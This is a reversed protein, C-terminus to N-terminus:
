TSVPIHGFFPIDRLIVFCCKIGTKIEYSTLNVSMNKKGPTSEIEFGNKRQSFNPQRVVAGRSIVYTPIGINGVAAGRVGVAAGRVGVVAGRLGVVAGRYTGYHIM